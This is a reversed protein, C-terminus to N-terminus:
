KAFAEQLEKEQKHIAYSDYSAEAFQLFNRLVLRTPKIDEPEADAPIAEIDVTYITLTNKYWDIKPRCLYNVISRVPASLDEYDHGTMILTIGLKRTQNLAIALQRAKGARSTANHLFRDVEDLFILVDKFQLDILRDLFETETMEPLVERKRILEAKSAESIFVHAQPLLRIPTNTYVHDEEYLGRNVADLVMAVGGATKGVGMKGGFYYINGQQRNIAQSSNLIPM